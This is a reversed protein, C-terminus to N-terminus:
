PILSILPQLLPNKLPLSSFCPHSILQLVKDKTLAIYIGTLVAQFYELSSIILYFLEEIKFQLQCSPHLPLFASFCLAMHSAYVLQFHKSKGAMWGSNRNQSSLSRIQFCQRWGHKHALSNRPRGKGMRERLFDQKNMIMRSLFTEVLFIFCTFIIEQGKTAQKLASTSPTEPVSYESSGPASKEASPTRQDECFLEAKESSSLKSENEKILLESM